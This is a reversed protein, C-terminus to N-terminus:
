PGIDKGEADWTAEQLGLISYNYCAKLIEDEGAIVKSHCWSPTSANDPHQSAITRPVLRDKKM